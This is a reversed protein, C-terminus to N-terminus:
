QSPFFLNICKNKYKNNCRSDHPQCSKNLTSHLCLTILLFHNNKNNKMLEELHVYTDCNGIITKGDQGYSEILQSETQIMLMTSIGRSRISAIMRPFEEIIGDWQPPIFFSGSDMFDKTLIM